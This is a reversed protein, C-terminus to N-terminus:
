CSLPSSAPTECLSVLTASRRQPEPLLPTGMHMAHTANRCYPGFSLASCFKSTSHFAGAVHAAPFHFQYCDEVASWPTVLRKISTNFGQADNFLKNGSLTYRMLKEDLSIQSHIVFIHLGSGSFNDPTIHFSSGRRTWVAYLEFAMNTGTKMTSESVKDCMAFAFVMSIRHVFTSRLSLYCRFPSTFAVECELPGHSYPACRM